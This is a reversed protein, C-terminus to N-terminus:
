SLFFCQLAKEVEDHEEQSDCHIVIDYKPNIHGKSVIEIPNDDAWQKIEESM